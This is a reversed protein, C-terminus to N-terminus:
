YAKLKILFFIATLDILNRQYLFFYVKPDLIVFHVKEYLNNPIKSMFIIAKLIKHYTPHFYDNLPHICPMQNTDIQFNRTVNPSIM